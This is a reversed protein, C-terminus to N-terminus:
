LGGKKASTLQTSIATRSIMRSFKRYDGHDRQWRGAVISVHVEALDALTIIDDNSSYKDWRVQDEPRFPILSDQALKDAEKEREDESDFELDDFFVGDADSLFDLHRVLHALEHLLTFWFNDVRDHRLTLGVVPGGNARLMVAGDLYTGPLTPFHILLIGLEALMARARQPGDDLRSLKAVQRLLTDRLYRKKFQGFERVEQAKHLVASQWVILAVDDTKSSTRKTRTRRLLAPAGSSGLANNIFDYISEKSESFGHKNLKNIVPKSVELQDTDESTNGEMLSAYPIGLGDHLSKIMELSLRRKGTLIQSVRSRSGVFPELDRPSLGEEEMRFKIAAIPDPLDIPIHKSEYDQILISLVEIDDSHSGDFNSRMLESIHQLAAKHDRDSRIPAIRM